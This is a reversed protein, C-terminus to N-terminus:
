KCVGGKKLTNVKNEWYALEFLLKRCIFLSVEKKSSYRHYNLRLSDVFDELKKIEAPM